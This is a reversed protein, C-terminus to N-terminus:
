ALLKLVSWNPFNAWQKLENTRRFRKLPKGPFFSHIFIKKRFLGRATLSLLTLMKETHCKFPRSWNKIKTEEDTTQSAVRLLFM